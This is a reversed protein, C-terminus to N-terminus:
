RRRADAKRHPANKASAAFTRTRSCAISVSAAADQRPGRPRRGHGRRRGDEPQAAMVFHHSRLALVHISTPRYAAALEAHLVRWLRQQARGLRPPLGPFETWTRAGTIVVVPTDGLRRLEGELADSRKLDVGSSCRSRGPAGDRPRRSRPWIALQRRTADVRVADVFVVGAVQEPHARAFLRAVFGGYSHCVLLDPPPIPGRALLRELDRVDDSADRVGPVADSAGLGARDYACVRTARGIEPLVNSWSDSGRGLGAELVVTPSGSGACEVYLRRAASMWWAARASASRRAKAASEFKSAEGGCGVCLLVVLVVVLACARVHRSQRRASGSAVNAGM